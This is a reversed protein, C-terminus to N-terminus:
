IGQGFDRCRQNKLAKFINYTRALAKSHLIEFHPLFSLKSSVLFGLDRVESVCQLGVNGITYTPPFDDSGICLVKTRHPALSLANKNAWTSVSDIAAQLSTLDGQNEVTRYIKVDDAYMQCCAHSHIHAPLDFTYLLFLLPSLVGSQPIGSPSAYIIPFCNGVR